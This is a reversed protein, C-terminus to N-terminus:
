LLFDSQSLDISDPLSPSIQTFTGTGELGIKQGLWGPGLLINGGLFIAILVALIYTFINIGLLDKMIDWESPANEQLQLLLEDSMESENMFEGGEENPMDDNKSMSLSHNNFICCSRSFFSPKIANAAGSIQRHTSEM